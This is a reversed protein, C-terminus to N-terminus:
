KPTVIDLLEVDFILASGPPIIGAPQEGYGLTYPIYLIYHSGIDMLQVGETWGPIVQNLPLELPEGRDYSSDFKTGDILTGTYHIRVVDTEKPKKGNGKKIIKYQLGSKTTFVSKNNKNEALFKEGEEITKPMRERMQKDKEQQRREFEQQFRQLLPNMTQQTFNNKGNACDILSHGVVEVDIPLGQMSWNNFLDRGIAYSSSDTFDQLKITM